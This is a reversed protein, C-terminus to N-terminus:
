YHQGKVEFTMVGMMPPVSIRIKENVEWVRCCGADACEYLDVVQPSFGHNALEIMLVKPMIRGKKSVKQMLGGCVLCEPKIM